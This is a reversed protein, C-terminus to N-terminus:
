YKVMAQIYQNGAVPSVGFAAASVGGFPVWGEQMKNNVQMRLDVQTKSSLIEYFIPVPAIIAQKLLDSHNEIMLSLTVALKEVEKEIGEHAILKNLRKSHYDANHLGSRTTEAKEGAALETDLDAHQLESLAQSLDSFELQETEKRRGNLVGMVIEIDLNNESGLVKKLYNHEKDSLVM